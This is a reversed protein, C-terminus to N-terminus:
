KSIVKRIDAATISIGKEALKQITKEIAKMKAQYEEMKPQAMKYYTSYYTRIDNDRNVAAVSSRMKSSEMEYRFAKGKDMAEPTFANKAIEAVASPGIEEFENFFDLIKPYIAQNGQDILGLLIKMKTVAFDFSRRKIGILLSLDDPTDTRYGSPSYEDATTMARYIENQLGKAYLYCVAAQEITLIELGKELAAKEGSSLEPAGGPNIDGMQDFDEFLILHKM